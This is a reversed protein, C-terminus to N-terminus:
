RGATAVVTWDELPNRITMKDRTILYLSSVGLVWVFLVAVARRADALVNGSLIKRFDNATENKRPTDGSYRLQFFDDAHQPPNISPM